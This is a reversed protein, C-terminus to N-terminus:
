GLKLPKPAHRGRTMATGRCSSSTSDVQICGESIIISLVWVLDCTHENQLRKAPLGGWLKYCLLVQIDTIWGQESGSSAFM